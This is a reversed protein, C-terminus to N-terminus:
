GVINLNVAMKKFLEISESRELGAKTFAPQGLEKSEPNFRVEVVYWGDGMKCTSLASHTLKSVDILPKVIETVVETIVKPVNKVM